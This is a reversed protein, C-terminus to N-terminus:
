DFRRDIERHAQRSVRDEARGMARRAEATFDVRLSPLGGGLLGGVGSLVDGPDIRTEFAFADPYEQRPRTFEFYDDVFTRAEAATLSERTAPWFADADAAVIPAVAEGLGRQRDLLATEVEERRAPSLSDRMAEVYGDRALIEDAHADWPESSEVADLVADFQALVDDRYAALEPEVVYEEVAASDSLLRDVVGPPGGSGRLANGLAFAEATAAIADDVFQAFGDRAAARTVVRRQHGSPKTNAGTASGVCGWRRCADGPDSM